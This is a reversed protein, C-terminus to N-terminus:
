FSLTSIKMDGYPKSSAQQNPLIVEGNVGIGYMDRMYQNAVTMHKNEIAGTQPDIHLKDYESDAISLALEAIIVDDMPDGSLLSSTDVVCNTKCISNLREVAQPIYTGTVHDLSIYNDQTSYSSDSIYGGHSYFMDAITLAM